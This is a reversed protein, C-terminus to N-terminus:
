DMRFSARMVPVMLCFRKETEKVCAMPGNGMMPPVTLSSTFDTEMKNVKDFTAQTSTETPLLLDVTVRMCTECGSVKMSPVMKIFRYAMAKASTKVTGSVKTVGM